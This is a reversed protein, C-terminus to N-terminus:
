KPDWVRGYLSIALLPDAIPAEGVRHSLTQTTPDWLVRKRSITHGGATAVSPFITDAQLTGGATLRFEGFSTGSWLHPSRMCSSPADSDTCHVVACVEIRFYDRYWGRFAALAFTDGRSDVPSSSNVASFSFSCRLGEHESTVTNPGAHPTFLTLAFDPEMPVPRDLKVQLPVPDWDQLYSDLPSPTDDSRMVETMDVVVSQYDWSSPDQQPISVPMNSILLVERAPRVHGSDGDGHPPAHPVGENLFVAAPHGAVFIGSGTMGPLSGGQNSSLLVSGTALTWSQHYQTSSLLPPANIWATPFVFHKINRDHLLEMSPQHFLLDFCVVLGFEVGFASFTQLREQPPPQDYQAEHFLNFKHYKAVLEGRSSFVVNTNFQLQQADGSCPTHYGPQCPAKEGMNAVVYMHFERAMCSLEAAVPSTHSWRSDTCLIVREESPPLAELFPRVSERTHKFGHLGDEPFVILQVGHRSAERMHTRFQQLNRHMAGRAVVRREEGSLHQAAGTVTVTTHEVVAVRVWAPSSASWWWVCVCVCACLCLCLCVRGSPATPVAPGRRM